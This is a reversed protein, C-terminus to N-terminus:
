RFLAHVVVAGLTLYVPWSTVNVLTHTKKLQLQVSDIKDDLQQLRQLLEDHEYDNMTPVNDSM